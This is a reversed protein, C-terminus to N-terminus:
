LYLISMGVLSTAIGVLGGVLVDRVFHKGILVRAASLLVGLLLVGIALLPEVFAIATGISFVSFAHRSPFSRGERKENPFSLGYVELPRPADIRARVISLIIFPIGCTLILDSALWLDDLASSIVAYAYACVTCIVAVIDILRLLLLLRPRARVALILRKHSDTDGLCKM